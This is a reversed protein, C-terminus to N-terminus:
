NQWATNGAPILFVQGPYIWHPDRIQDKNAQYITSYRIGRGYLNRAITWLNDGRKIIVTELAPVAGSTEAGGAAGVTTTPVLTAVAIEREFPVEARAIVDGTADDVQDARVHYTGSPVERKVEVLWTGSPSPTAEGIPQNDLYVRVSETTEATGAVYLRGATDAEVAAVTVAPKMPEAPEGQAAAPPETAAVAEGTAGPEEVMVPAEAPAAPGAAAVSEETAGPEEATTPAEDPSATAVEETTAPKEAPSAMAVEPESRSAVPASPAAPATATAEPETPSVMAVEPEAVTPSEPEAGAVAVDAGAPAVPAEGPTEEPMAEAVQPTPEPGSAPTAPEPGTGAAPMQLVTSPTDPTNLVVLVDDSSKDEPVSVAVRQDSLMATGRDKSTARIALNHAGPPLPTDLALAWEGRANAEATAVATPGDLVEVTAQPEALGAVVTEGSPEVRVVDFTPVVAPSEPAASPLERAAKVEPKAPEVSAGPAMAVEPEAPRTPEAPAAPGASAAPAEMAVKPASPQQTAGPGAKALAEPEAAPTEAVETQSTAEDTPPASVLSAPPEIPTEGAPVSEDASEAPAFAIPGQPMTRISDYYTLAAILGVAFILAVLGAIRRQDM